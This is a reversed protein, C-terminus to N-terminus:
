FKSRSLRSIVNNRFAEDKNYLPNMMDSKWEAESAYGGSQTQVDGGDPRFLDPQSGVGADFRAKMGAVAAKVKNIDQTALQDNFTELETNDISTNMWDLMANYKEEGGTMEYVQGVFQNALANLGALHTDITQETIGHEKMLKERTEPTLGGDNKEMELTLAVPDLPDLKGVVKDAATDGDEQSNVKDADADSQADAATSSLVLEGKELSQYVDEISMNYKQAMKNALGQNLDAESKYKGALLQDAQNGQVNTSDKSMGTDAKAIMEKDHESEGVAPAVDGGGDTQIAQNGEVIESM